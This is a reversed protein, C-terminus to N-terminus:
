QVFNRDVEKMAPTFISIFVLEGSGTNKTCHVKTTPNFHVSGPKIDVWQDNIMQQGTGKIVCVTEDRTKHFHRKVEAGEIIRGVIVTITDDQAINILQVQEGAKLPTQKLIEDVHTVIQSTTDAANTLTLTAFFLFLCVVIGCMSTNRKSLM